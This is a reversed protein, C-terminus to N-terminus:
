DTLKFSFPLTFTTATAKGRFQAPKWRPMKKLIRIVEEDTGYGISRIIKIREIKGDTNVWFEAIVTGQVDSKRAEKPYKLNRGIFERMKTAGGPYEPQVDVAAIPQPPTPPHGPESVMISVEKGGTRQASVLSSCCILALFTIAGIVKLTYIQFFRTMQILENYVVMSYLNHDLFLLLTLVVTIILLLKYYWAIRCKVQKM